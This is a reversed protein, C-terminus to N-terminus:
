IRHGAMFGDSVAHEIDAPRVCDGISLVQRRNDELAHLLQRRAKLSAAFIVSDAPVLERGDAKDVLLGDDTIAQPRGSVLEIGLKPWLEAFLWARIRSSMDRALGDLRRPTVLKVRKGQQALLAATECAMMGGGVVIVAPGTAVNGSLVEGAMRVVPKDIGELPPVYFAAGTAVVVVEADSGNVVEPTVRSGLEVRVGLRVLQVSFYDVLYRIDRKFSASSAPILNGGLRNQSEHLIVRHGRLAAVRAAEMGSPGGGVVMVRKPRAAPKLPFDHERAVAANVSCAVAARKTLVRHCAQNCGICKRIEGLEGRYAKNPLEPDALLARGMDVFDAQGRALVEEAIVPDHIRGVAITPISVAKKIEHALEANCAPPLCMPPVVRLPTLHIGATIDVAAVGEAELRQAFLKAEEVGWGGPLFDDGPYRFIIPYDPATKERAARVLELPFRVRGEFDGGYGDGRKNALPSLFDYVLYGQAGHVQVGDFGAEMTRRAGEGFDRVLQVIEEKALSRAPRGSPWPVGSASVPDVDDYRGRSPNLQLIVRPGCERIASALNRLGPIFSDDTLLLRGPHGKSCPYTAELVVLGVGGRARELYYDLMAESVRGDETALCTVMPAMVIRNQLVLRGIKGPSFLRPFLSSSM